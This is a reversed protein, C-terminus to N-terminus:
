KSAKYVRKREELMHWNLAKHIMNRLTYHYRKCNGPLPSDYSFRWNFELPKMGDHNVYNVALYFGNTDFITVGLLKGEDSLQEKIEVKPIKKLRHISELQILTAEM